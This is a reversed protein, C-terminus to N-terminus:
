ERSFLTFGLAVPIMMCCAYLGSQYSGFTEKFLALLSPGIASGIVLSTMQMGGIAGLYARGFLRPLAITTLTAFFGGSAGLGLIGIIRWPLLNLHAMGVFGLLQLLLLTVVLWKLRVRDSIVGVLFGTITALIGIPLFLSVAQQETLGGQTGLDVLNFTIGTVTLSHISLALTVSWFELTKIAQSANLEGVKAVNPTSAQQNSSEKSEPPTGDMTLGCVEPHDRYFLWGLLTMGLGVTVALGLWGGRWGLGRIWFSLLLPAASFGFSIFVNAIGSVFGRRRDFWKGLMTRSVLTLIGQGTFRLAIFGVAMVGLGILSRDIAPLSDNLLAITYDCLSLYVLTLGLGISALMVTLRAGFRDILRGGLPLLFGSGLTGILYASSLQVRSLGTAEIVPDTFVSVGATQGPISFLTGVTAFVAIVWGYFFPFRKPSIPFNPDFATKLFPFRSLKM